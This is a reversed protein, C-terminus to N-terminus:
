VTRPQEFVGSALSTVLEKLESPNVPEGLNWLNNFDLSCINAPKGTLEVALEHSLGAGMNMSGLIATIGKKPKLFLFLKIHSNEVWRVQGTEKRLAHAVSVAKFRDAFATGVIIRSLKKSQLLRMAFDGTGAWWSAVEMRECSHLNELIRWKITDPSNLIITM